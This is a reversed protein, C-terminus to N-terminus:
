EILFVFHGLDYDEDAWVGYQGRNSLSSVPAAGECDSDGGCAVLEVSVTYDGATLAGTEGTGADCDFLDALVVDTSLNHAEVRVTDAGASYCDVETGTRVDNTTWTLLFHADLVDGAEVTDASSVVCGSGACLLASLVVFSSKM